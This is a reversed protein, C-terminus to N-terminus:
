THDAIRYTVELIDEQRIRAKKTMCRERRRKYLSAESPLRWGPYGRRVMHHLGSILM